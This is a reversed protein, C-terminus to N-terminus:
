KAMLSIFSQHGLRRGVVGIARAGLRVQLRAERDLGGRARPLGAHEDSAQEVENPAPLRSEALGGRHGECLLSRALQLHADAGFELAQDALASVLLLPSGERLREVVQAVRLDARDVAEAGIEQALAGDLRSHVRAELHGVFQGCREDAFSHPLLPELDFEGCAVGGEQSGDPETDREVRPAVGQALSGRRHQPQAVEEAATRAVVPRQRVCKAEHSLNQRFDLFEDAEDLVIAPFTFWEGRLHAMCAVREDHGPLAVLHAGRSDERSQIEPALEGPLLLPRALGRRPSRPVKVLRQLLLGSLKRLAQSLGHHGLNALRETPEDLCVLPRLGLLPDEVELVEQEERAVHETAVLGRPFVEFLAEAVDENVLELVGVGELGLNQEEERFAAALVGLVPALHLQLRPFEEEDAVRLLGDVAEAARVDLYVLPRFLRNRALARRQGEALTEPRDGTRPMASTTLAMKSGIM